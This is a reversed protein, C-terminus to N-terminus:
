NIFQHTRILIVGVPIRFLVILFPWAFVLQQAWDWESLVDSVQHGETDSRLQTRQGSWSNTSFHTRSSEIETPFPKLISLFIHYRWSCILLPLIIIGTKIMETHFVLYALSRTTFAVKWDFTMLWFDGRELHHLILVTCYFFHKMAICAVLPSFFLTWSSLGKSM